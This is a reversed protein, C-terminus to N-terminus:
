CVPPLLADGACVATVALGGDASAPEWGFLLCFLFPLALHVRYLVFVSHRLHIRRTSDMRHDPMARLQSELMNEALQPVWEFSVVVVVELGPAARGTHAKMHMHTHTDGFGWMNAYPQKRMM